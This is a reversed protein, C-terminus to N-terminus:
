AAAELYLSAFEDPTMRARRALDNVSEGAALRRDLVSAVLSPREPRLHVPESIRYGAASLEINLQRYRYDSIRGVDWARRLLAAMSMRWVPKLEALRALDVDGGFVGHADMAPMLLAAAFRDAEDEQNPRVVTHMVAHGLEHSLTFRARDASATSNVLMLPRHGEPWQGIADLRRNGLDRVVVIVGLREAFEVLDAIPGRPLGADARVRDAMEVATIWDEDAAARRVLAVPPVRGDLLPEVQMRTLQLLARVRREASTPLSNRKRPFACATAAPEAGPDAAFYEIPYRLAEAVQALRPGSLEVAGKEAKSLYAQSIQSREALEIQTMGRAVRALILSSATAVPPSLSIM